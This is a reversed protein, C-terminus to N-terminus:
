RFWETHSQKFASLFNDLTDWEEAAKMDREARKLDAKLEDVSQPGVGSIKDYNMLVTPREKVLAYEAAAPESAMWAEKEIDEFQKM